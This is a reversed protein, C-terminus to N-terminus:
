HLPLRVVKSIFEGGLSGIIGTIIFASWFLATRGAATGLYLGATAGAGLLLVVAAVRSDLGDPDVTWDSLGSSVTQALTATVWFFTGCETPETLGSIAGIMRHWLVFSLVLSSTLNLAAAIDGIGLSSDAAEALAAGIVTIASVAWWFIAEPFRDRAVRAAIASILCVASLAAVAGWLSASAWLSLAKGAMQGPATAVVKIAWFAINVEPFQRARGREDSAYWDTRLVETLWSKSM